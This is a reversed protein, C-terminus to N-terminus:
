VCRSSYLNVEGYHTLTSPAKSARYMELISFEGSLIVQDCTNHKILTWNWVHLKVENLQNMQAASFTFTFSCGSM